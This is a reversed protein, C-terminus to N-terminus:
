RIKELLQESTKSEAQAIEAINNGFHSTIEAETYGVLHAGETEYSLEDLNNLGSFISTKSFKSVGTIFVARLYADLGKFGDYFNKLVM